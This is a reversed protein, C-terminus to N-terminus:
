NGDRGRRRRRRKRRRRRGEEEEGEEKGEEEKEGEELHGSLHEQRSGLLLPLPPEVPDSSKIMKLVHEGAPVMKTQCHLVDQSTNTGYQQM